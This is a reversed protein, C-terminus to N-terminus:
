RVKKNVILNASFEDIISIKEDERLTWFLIPKNIKKLAHKMTCDLKNINYSIFDHKKFKIIYKSFINNIFNPLTNFLPLLVGVPIDKDKFKYINYIDHYFSQIAYEGQYTMLMQKTYDVLNKINYFDNEMKLEILIPVKGNILNLIDRLTALKCNSDKINKTEIDEKTINKFYKKGGSEFVVYKDHLLIVEKENTLRVDIEIPMKYNLAIRCSELTNGVIKREKSTIGRHAIPTSYLWLKNM